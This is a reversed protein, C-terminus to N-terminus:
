PPDKLKFKAGDDDVSFMSKVVKLRREVSLLCYVSCPCRRSAPPLSDEKPEGPVASFNMHAFQRKRMEIATELIQKRSRSYGNERHRSAAAQRGAM